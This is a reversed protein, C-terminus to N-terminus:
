PTGGKTILQQVAWITFGLGSTIFVLVLAWIAKTLNSMQKCVTAIDKGHAIDSKELDTIRKGHESLEIEHGDLRHHASKSSEVATSIEVCKETHQDCYGAM